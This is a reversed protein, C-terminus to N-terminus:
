LSRTTPHWSSRGGPRGDPTFALNGISGPLGKWRYLEQGTSCDRLSVDNTRSASAFVPKRPHFALATTMFGQVPLQRGIRPALEFVAVTKFSAALRRGDPSFAVAEPPWGPRVVLLPRGTRVDWLRLTEDDGGTAVLEGDPSFAVCTVKSTHGQLTLLEQGREVDWLKATRDDSTSPLLKGDPGWALSRVRDRHGWLTRPKSAGATARVQVTDGPGRTALQDGAPSLAVPMYFGGQPAHAPFMRRRGGTAADYLGVQGDGWSVALLDGKRDFALDRPPAPGELAPL